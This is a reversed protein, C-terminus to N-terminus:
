FMPQFNRPHAITRNGIGQNRAQLLVRVGAMMLGPHFISLCTRFGTRKSFYQTHRKHEMKKYSNVSPLDTCFDAHADMGNITISLKYLNLKKTLKKAESNGNRPQKM